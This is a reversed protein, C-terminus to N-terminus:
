PYDALHHDEAVYGIRERDAPRLERSDCGLLRACGAIPELFGLLIQIATTKGAGNRGLLAFVEGPRVALELGRLVAHEGFHRHVGTFEIVNTM